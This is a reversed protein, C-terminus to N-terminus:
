PTGGNYIFSILGICFAVLLGVVSSAVRWRINEERGLKLDLKEILKVQNDNITKIMDSDNEQQVEVAVVRANLECMPDPM